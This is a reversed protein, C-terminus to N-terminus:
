VKMACSPFRYRTREPAIRRSIRRRGGGSGIM